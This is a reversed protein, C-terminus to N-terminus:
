PLPKYSRDGDLLLDISVYLHIFFDFEFLPFLFGDERGVTFDCPDRRFSFVKKKAGYGFNQKVKRGSKKEM